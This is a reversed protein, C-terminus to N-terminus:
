DVSRLRTATAVRAAQKLPADLEKRAWSSLYPPRCVWVFSALNISEGRWAVVDHHVKAVLQKMRVNEHAAMATLVEWTWAFAAPSFEWAVV